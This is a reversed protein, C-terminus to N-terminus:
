RRRLPHARRPQMSSIAAPFVGSSTAYNSTGSYSANITHSAVGLNATTIFAVGNSAVAGTGIQHAQDMPGDYFIVTGSGATGVLPSVLTVTASFAVIQGFVSSTPTASITTNTPAPSVTYPTLFGSSGLFNASDGSYDVRITQGPGVLLATTNFTASGNSVSQIGPIQQFPLNPALREFFTVYGGSPAVATSPAAASIAVTFTVTQGFVSGAPTATLLTNTNAKAVTYNLPPNQLSAAYSTGGDGQYVARISHVGATLTPTALDLTAVGSANVAQTGLLTTGDAYFYVNGNSPPAAASPSAATVTATFVLEQGYAPSTAGTGAPSGTVVAQTPALGVTYSLPQSPSGNFNSSGDYQAVITHGGAALSSIPFSASGNLLSASGLYNGINVSGEYFSVTGASVVGGGPAQAVVSASFMAAQGFVTSGGVAAVTTTTNAPSIVFNAPTGNNAGFNGNGSYKATITHSGAALLPNPVPLTAVNSGNLTLSGLPTTSGDIYFAVSGATPPSATSPSATTVTATFTLPQGYVLNAPTETVTTNTAAPNVTFPNLQGRSNRFKLNDGTYFASIIHTSSVALTATTVTAVGSSNISVPGAGIQKTPDASPGDYFTVTGANAVGYSPTLMSVTASFTVTQGFMATPPTATVQTTTSGPNVVVGDQSGESGNYDFGDGSYEATVMRAAGPSLGTTSLFANGNVVNGSGLFVWANGPRDYFTISGGNLIGNGSVAPIITARLFVPQNYVSTIPLTDVMTYTEAPNVVFPSPLYGESTVYEGLIGTPTYVAKITHVMYAHLTNTSITAKGLSNINVQYGILNAGDYFRVTGYTPPASGPVSATVTATFTVMQGYATPNLNVSVTTTTAAPNVLQSLPASTSVLFNSDGSYSASINHGGLALPALLLGTSWTAANPSGANGLTATGLVTNGDFFTVTGSPTSSTSATANVTATFTVEQGYSSPNAGSIVMTVSAYSAITLNRSYSWTLGQGNTSVAGVWWTYSHGLIFAQSTTLQYSTTTINSVILVPAQGTTNDRVWLRYSAADAVSSWSFNPTLTSSIIPPSYLTPPALALVTFNVPDSWAIKGNGPAGIWWTFDHGPTLAESQPLQWTWPTGVLDQTTVHGSNRDYIYVQYASLGPIGLWTFTPQDTQIAGHPLFGIPAVRTNEPSSWSKVLGNPSITAVWWTYQDGPMLSQSPTWSTLNAAVQVDSILNTNLDELYVEYGGAQAVPGWSFTPLLNQIIGSPSIPTPSPLAQVWFDVGGSWVPANNDSISGVWWRYHEGPQLAYPQTWSLNSTEIHDNLHTGATVDDLWFENSSLASSWSYTPTRTTITGFPSFLVPAPQLITFHVVPSWAVTSGGLSAVFWQYSGGYVVGPIPGGTSNSNVNYAELIQGNTNELVFAYRPAGTWSWLFDPYLTYTYGVPSIPTPAGYTVPPLVGSPPPGGTTPPGVNPPTGPTIQSPPQAPDPLKIIIYYTITIINYAASHPDAKFTIIDTGITPSVYDYFSSTPTHALTGLTPPQIVEYSWTPGSPVNASLDIPLHVNPAIFETPDFLNGPNGSQTVVYTFITSTTNAGDSATITVSYPNNIDADPAIVGTIQGSNLDITLGNPLNSAAFTVPLGAADMAIIPLSISEGLYGSQRAIAPVTLVPSITWSFSTSADASGDMATITTLYPSSQDATVAISGSIIGTASDIALGDPLGSASFSVSYGVSDYALVPLTIVNTAQSVQSGPNILIIVPGHITWQFNESASVLGDTASVNVTYPSEATGSAAITGYIAGTASNIYLGPPLGTAGYTLTLGASDTATINFEVSDLIQNVQSRCDIMTVIPETVSWNFTQSTSVLGDTVNIIVPYPSDLSDDSPLTGSITGTVPDISLGPPLGIASFTLAFGASDSAGLHLNVADLIQNSQVGPSQLTVVPATVAWNFSQSTSVLGDSASVTVPYPSGVDAGGPIVGSIIGTASNISLGFPLGAAGYLLPLGASDSASLYGHVADGVQNVRDGPNALTVVPLTVTWHFTQSATAVGDSATVTVSYSSDTSADVSINGSIVGLAPDMVLGTPLGTASYTLPLGASDFATMYIQIPDVVQNAQDGPNNLTVTPGLVNWNFVVSSSSTGDTASITVNYPTGFEANNAITGSITGTASDIELGTPLGVAGYALPLGQADSGTIGFAVTDVVTSVQDGPSYLTIVPEVIWIFTQSSSTTGDTASVTVAYPSTADDGGAISGTIDGTNGDITLGSPLGTASYTLPFGASDSAALTLDVTDQVHSVQDGPNYLTVVPAQVFWQFTQSSSAFGDSASITVSYPSGPETNDSITGFITGSGDIGLGPPLGTATYTLPLSASDSTIVTLAVEDLVENTQDGPNNLTVLPASITVTGANFTVAYNSGATLTGQSITYVGPPSASTADTTLAGALSDGTVLGNVTYTLDPM